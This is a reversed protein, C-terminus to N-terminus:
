YQEKSDKTINRAEQLNSLYLMNCNFEFLKMPLNLPMIKDENM